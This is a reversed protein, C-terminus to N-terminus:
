PQQRTPFIKTHKQEYMARDAQELLTEMSSPHEWDYRALGASFSLYFGRKALANHAELQEYLRRLMTEGSHDASEFALVVFEDGGFRAIIDASRFTNKLITGTDIIAQDGAAHGLTDNIWKLRDLDIYILAANLEMRGTMHLMQNALMKFGRRNTLGTLEDALSLEQLKKEIEKRESIDHIVILYGIRQGRKDKLGSLTVEYYITLTGKIRTTEWKISGELTNLSDPEIWSRLVSSAPEGTPPRQWGIIHLAEPNADVLRSHMDLVIVGDSLMEIMADRAVPALDFLRHRFIAFGIAGGWLTYAFPNLDLHQLLPSLQMRSLYIIYIAYIVPAVTLIILTQKRYLSSAFRRKQLLLFNGITVMLLSYAAVVPYLPGRSFALLPIGGSADMQVTTYILHLSDDFIKIILLGAPILFLLAAKKATLWDENGTYQIVFILYLTPFTLIGLYQVKNWFVMVSLNPSVLELFYGLIYIAMSFMFLSFLRAGSNPGQKWAYLAIASVITGCFLVFGAIPNFEM